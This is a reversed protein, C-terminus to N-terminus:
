KNHLGSSSPVIEYYNWKFPLDQNSKGHFKWYIYTFVNSVFLFVRRYEMPDSMKVVKFALHLSPPFIQRSRQLYDLYELVKRFLATTPLM